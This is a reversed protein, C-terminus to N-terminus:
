RRYGVKLMLIVLMNNEISLIARYDGVRLKYANFGSLKTVSAFPNERISDLKRSIRKQITKDLKSFQKYATPLWRIEYVM